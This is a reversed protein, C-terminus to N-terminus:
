FMVSCDPVASVVHIHVNLSHTYCVFINNEVYVYRDRRKRSYIMLWSVYNARCIVCSYTHTRFLKDVLFLIKGWQTNEFTEPFTISLYPVPYLVHIYEYINYLFVAWLWHWHKNVWPFCKNLQVCQHFTGFFLKVFCRRVFVAGLWHWHKNM